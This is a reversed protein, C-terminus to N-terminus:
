ITAMRAVGVDVEDLKPSGGNRYLWLRSLDKVTFKVKKKGENVGDVGNTFGRGNAFDRRLANLTSSPSVPSMDRILTAEEGASLPEGHAGCYSMEFGEREDEKRDGDKGLEVVSDMFECKEVAGDFGSGGIGGKPKLSPKLPFMNDLYHQNLQHGKGPKEFVRGM